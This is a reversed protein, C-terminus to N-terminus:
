CYIMPSADRSGPRPAPPPGFASRHRRCNLTSSASNPWRMSSRMLWQRWGRHSAAGSGGRMGLPNTTSPVESIETRFLPLTDARPVAYDMLSGSLLQATDRDYPHEESLAQGIGQAVGGHSQGHILMLNVARGCDDISTYGVIEVMGTELDIEVECV